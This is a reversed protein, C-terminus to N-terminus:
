PIAWTFIDLNLTGTEASLATVQMRGPLDMDTRYCLYYGVLSDVQIAANGLALNQCDTLGPRNAGFIAIAAAGQPALSHDEDGVQYVVDVSGSNLQNTDLDLGDLDQLITAGAAQAGPTPSLTATMTTQLTPTITVTGTGRAVVNIKVWFAAGGSPGIGFLVGAPNRLKWYSIYSGPAQPAQMDVSIDVTEGPGVSGSLPLSEPAGLREGYFWVLSYGQDWACTGANQLRWTKTFDQGPQMETDDPISVDIPSGPLAQDCLSDSPATVAVTPTRPPLTSVTPASTATSTPPSTPTTKPTRAVAQTLRAQVTQYAQTVDLTPTTPQDSPLNCGALSLLFVPLILRVLAQSISPLNM